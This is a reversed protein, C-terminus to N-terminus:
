VADCQNRAIETGHTSFHFLEFITKVDRAALIQVARNDIGAAVMADCHCEANRRKARLAFGQNLACFRGRDAERFEKIQQIKDGFALKAFLGGCRDGVGRAEVSRIRPGTKTQM